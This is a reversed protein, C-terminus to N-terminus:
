WIQEKEHIAPTIGNTWSTTVWNIDYSVLYHPDSSRPCVTHLIKSRKEALCRLQVYTCTNEKYLRNLEKDAEMISDEIPYLKNVYIAQADYEEM